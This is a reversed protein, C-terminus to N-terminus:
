AILVPTMVGPLSRRGSAAVTSASGTAYTFSACCSAAAPVMRDPTAAHGTEEYDAPRLNSSWDFVPSSQSLVSEDTLESETQLYGDLDLLASREDLSAMRSPYFDAISGTARLTTLLESMAHLAVKQCSGPFHAFKYGLAELEGATMLPTRGGEAMNAKLPLGLDRLSDAIEAVEERSEPAEVFLSDAGAEAYARARALAAPLGEVARADTRAMIMLDPDERAKVAARIRMVMEDVPVVTKGSFHGCRRAQTQDEIFYGAVGANEMLRVTRMVNLPGGFGSECDAIVPVDVASVIARIRDVVETMTMLGLDPVGLASAALGAGTVAVIEFGAAAVLRASLGDYAAPTVLIGPRRLLAKLKAPQSGASSSTM